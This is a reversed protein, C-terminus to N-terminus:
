GHRRQACVTKAQMMDHQMRRHLADVSDFAQDTRLYELLEVEITRGYLDQGGGFFHFEVVVDANGRTMTPARGIYAVGDKPLGKGRGKQQLLTGRAAYVGSPPLLLEVVDINATPCQFTSAGIGRGHIVQGRLAYPRGLLREATKLRGARLAARIRTSSVPKGYWHLEDVSVVEFGHRVGARRLFGVDGEGRAGFRWKAGVCIGALQLGSSLLYQHLFEDASRSALDRSFNLIVAAQAGYQEFLAIKQSNTSLLAPPNDPYLVARPHPDFTLVAPLARHRRSLDVLAHLLKQHGRHVGDFVGCAVVARALGKASLGDVSATVIM